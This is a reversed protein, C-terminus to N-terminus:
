EIVFEIRRNQAKGEDTDNSAIPQDEGYGIATMRSGDIGKDELYSKVADARAQSLALNTANDGDSDTHGAIEVTVDPNAALYDAAQDLVDQGQTTISSVEFTIPDLDLEENITAQEAPEEEEEEGPRDATDVTTEITTAVTTETPENSETTPPPEEEVTDTSDTTAGSTLGSSDPADEGFESLVWSLAIVVVLGGISWWLWMPVGDRSGRSSPGSGGPRGGGAADRRHSGIRGVDAATSSTGAAASTTTSDSLSHMIVGFRESFNDAGPPATNLSTTFGIPPRAASVHSM